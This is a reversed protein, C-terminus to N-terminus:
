FQDKLEDIERVRQQLQAYAPQERIRGVAWRLVEARSQAIGASVLTDVTALDAPGLRTMVPTLEEAVDDPTAGRGGRGRIRLIPGGRPRATVTPRDPRFEVWSIFSLLEDHLKKVVPRNAEAFTEVIEKDAEKGEPRGARDIFVRIATEGPEVEPDDGYGLVQVRAIAGEPFASRVQEEIRDTVAKEMGDEALQAYNEYQERLLHLM